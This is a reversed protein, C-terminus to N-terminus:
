EGRRESEGQEKVHRDVWVSVRNPSDSVARAHFRSATRPRVRRITLDM